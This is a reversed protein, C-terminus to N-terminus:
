SILSSKITSNTACILAQMKTKIALYEELVKAKVQISLAYIASLM